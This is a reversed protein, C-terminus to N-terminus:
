KSRRTQGQHLSFTEEPSPTTVGEEVVDELGEVVKFLVEDELDMISDKARSAEEVVARTAHVIAHSTAWRVVSIVLGLDIRADEVLKWPSATGWFHQVWGQRSQCIRRIIIRSLSQFTPPMLSGEDRIALRNLSAKTPPHAPKISLAHYMKVIHGVFMSGQRLDQQIHDLEQAALKFDAYSAPWGRIGLAQVIQPNVADKMLDLLVRDDNIGFLLVWLDFYNFFEDLPLQGQQAVPDLFRENLAVVFMDWDGYDPPTGNQIGLDQANRRKEDAWAIASLSGSIYSLMWTIKQADNAFHHPHGDIYLEFAQTPRTLATLFPCNPGNQILEV